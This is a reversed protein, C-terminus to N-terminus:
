IGEAYLAATPTHTAAQRKHIQAAETATLLKVMFYDGSDRYRDRIAQADALRRVAPSFYWPGLRTHLYAIRFM